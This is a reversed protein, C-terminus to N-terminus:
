VRKYYGHRPRVLEGSEVLAGLEEKALDRALEPSVGYRTQLASFIEERKMPTDRSIVETLMEPMNPIDGRIISAAFDHRDEITRM